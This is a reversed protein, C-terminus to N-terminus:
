TANSAVKKYADLYDKAFGDAYKEIGGQENKVRRLHHYFEHLIVHVNSLIERHAVHIRKSTSVYCGPNKSHGKPMGVKLKPTVVHYHESLLELAQTTDSSLIMYVIKAKFLTEATLM